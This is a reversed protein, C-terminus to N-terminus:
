GRGGWKRGKKLQSQWTRLGQVRRRSGTLCFQPELGPRPHLETSSCKGPMHLSRSKIQLMLTPIFRMLGVKFSDRYHFARQSPIWFYDASELTPWMSCVKKNNSHFSLILCLTFLPILYRLFSHSLVEWQIFRSIHMTHVPSLLPCLVWGESSVVM